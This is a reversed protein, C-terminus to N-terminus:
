SSFSDRIKNFTEGVTALHKQLMDVTAAGSERLSEVTVRLLKTLKGSEENLTKVEEALGTVNDSLQRTADHVSSVQSEFGGVANGIATVSQHTEELKEQLQNISKNGHVSPNKVRFLSLLIVKAGMDCDNACLIEM